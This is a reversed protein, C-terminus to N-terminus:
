KLLQVSPVLAHGIWSRRSKPLVDCDPARSWIKSSMDFMLVISDKINCFLVIGLQDITDFHVLGDGRFQQFIEDPMFCFMRWQKEVLDYEWIEIRTITLEEEDLGGVLFLREKFVLLHFCLLSLPLEEDVVSWMRTKLDFALLHDPLRGLVFLLGNLLIANGLMAYHHPLQGASEWRRSASNYVQCDSPQLIGDIVNESSSM